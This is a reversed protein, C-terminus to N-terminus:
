KKIKENIENIENISPLSQSLKTTKSLKSTNSIQQNLNVVFKDIYKKNITDELNDYIEEVSPERKNELKYKKVFDEIEINNIATNRREKISTVIKTEEDKDVDQKYMTTTVSILSDCIEPKYFDTNKFKKNFSKIAQYRIMPSTELLLDYQEKTKKLYLEIDEREEPSKALEVKINRCLKGWSISSVRHAENLENVKLFQSITTIFGALINFGGVGMTYFFQYQVPIREQAFNAVGTLTSIFIVPITFCIQLFYYHRNCNSHLYRYCMAKDCWDAFINEYYSTWQLKKDEM